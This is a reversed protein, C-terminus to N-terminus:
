KDTRASRTNLIEEQFFDVAGKGIYLDNLEKDLNDADIICIWNKDYPSHDLEEPRDNLWEQIRIVKGGLPAKFGYEQNQNRIHFLPQGKKIERGVNPFEIRDIKGIEKKIFDDIGIKALGESDLDIWCHEMSIFVGGPIYYEGPDPQTNDGLQTIYVRPKLDARIRDRRKQLNRSTLETLEEYTFPKQVFDMAGYQMAEVATEVTGYGTIIVVDTDPRLSKISRTVELGHMGPM